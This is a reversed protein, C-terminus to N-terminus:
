GRPPWPVFASTTAQYRRYDDGRTRLAQAETAPIGTVRLLLFLLLLPVSLAIWGGPSPLAFAALAVWLLWEFFYNPHRSYRWIGTRCTRGRNSPQAKFRALQRDALAEGALALCWLALGAVELPALGPAPNSAAVLAPLSFVVALAAQVQFFPLFAMAAAPSRRARLDAYRPDEPRHIIRDRLLYVGLRVAWLGIMVGVLLRRVPDGTGVGAYAVSLAGVAAVWGLDVVGANRIRLHWVWVGLM